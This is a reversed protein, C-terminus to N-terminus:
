YKINVLYDALNAKPSWGLLRHAKTNDALTQISEGIRSKVNISSIGLIDIIENISYNNGSGINIVGGFESEPLSKTACLQTAEVVDEVYTFDRRQEGNGIIEAPANISLSKIFKGIVTSYEGVNPQRDGYVNFYRLSITELGFTKYYMSCLNEGCLKGVSYPTLCDTPDSENNPIKTSRGYVSSTSAYIFRNVGAELSAQLCTATGLVNCSLSYNPNSISPQIRADSALHFVYDVGDYLNRTKKYDSVDVIYNKSRKNWYFKENYRATQNDIVIVDHGNELLDDVLHSGIFGAGGTVLCRSLYVM